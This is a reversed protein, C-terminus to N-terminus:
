VTFVNGCSLCNVFITNCEDLSRTQASQISCKNQKCRRCQYLTSYKVPMEKGTESIRELQYIYREPFLKEINIDPIESIKIEQNRIKKLIKKFTDEDEFFGVVRATKLHYIEESDPNHLGENNGEIETAIKFCALELQMAIDIMDKSDYLTSDENSNIAEVILNLKINRLNPLVSHKINM